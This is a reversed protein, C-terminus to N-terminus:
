QESVMNHISLNYERPALPWLMYNCTYTLIHLFGGLLRPFYVYIFICRVSKQIALIYYPCLSTQM